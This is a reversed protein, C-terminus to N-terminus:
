GCDKLIEKIHSQWDLHYKSVLARHKQIFQTFVKHLKKKNYGQHVLRQALSLHRSHFDDFNSCARAFAVLRSVYVGYAPSIPINSDIWPYNVIQFAFDDRKDYLKSNLLGDNSKFFFLDLYSTGQPSDTANKLELSSPYIKAVYNKFHSNNFSILDDIYRFTFNFKRALHLKKDSVLEKMFEYEYAFLYLDALLPACNTGMPIGVTQRFVHNGFLIYINDIIFDLLQVFQIHSFCTYGKYEKNSFFAPKWESICIFKYSSFFKKILEKIKKKLDKHNLTTYLSTFDWTTICDYETICGASLSELLDKSNKLIWMYNMGSNNFIAQCYSIWRNKILDLGKTLLVSVKKTSCNKSGAIFRFKFPTKHLKPAWYIRPLDQDKTSLSISYSNLFTQHETVINLLTDNM